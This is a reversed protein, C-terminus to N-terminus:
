NNKNSLWGKEDREKILRACEEYRELSINLNIVEEYEDFTPPKLDNFMNNNEYVQVVEIELEIEERTKTM